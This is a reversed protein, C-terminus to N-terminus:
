SELYNFSYKGDKYQIKMKIPSYKVDGLGSNKIATSSTIIYASEFGNDPTTQTIQVDPFALNEDGLFKRNIDIYDKKVKESSITEEDFYENMEKWVLTDDSCKFYTKLAKCIEERATKMKAYSIDTNSGSGGGAIKYSLKVDDCAKQVNNLSTQKEFEIKETDNEFDSISNYTKEILAIYQEGIHDIYNSCEGKSLSAIKSENYCNDVVSLDNLLNEFSKEKIDSNTEIAKATTETTMNDNHPTLYGVFLCISITGIICGIFIVEIKYKKLKNTKKNKTLYSKINDLNDINMETYLQKQKSEAKEREKKKYKSESIGTVIELTVIILIVIVLVSM